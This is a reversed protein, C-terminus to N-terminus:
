SDWDKAKKMIRPEAELPYMRLGKSDWLRGLYFCYVHDGDYMPTTEPFIEKFLEYFKFCGGRQFDIEHNKKVIDIIDIKILDIIYDFGVM